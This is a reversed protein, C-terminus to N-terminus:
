GALNRFMLFRCAEAISHSQVTVNGDESESEREVYNDSEMKMASLRECYQLRWDSCHLVFQFSLHYDRISM